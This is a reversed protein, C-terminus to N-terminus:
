TLENTNFSDVFWAAPGEAFCPEQNVTVEDGILNGKEDLFGVQKIVQTRLTIHAYRENFKELLRFKDRNRRVIEFSDNMICRHELVSEDTELYFMFKERLKFLQQTEEYSLRNGFDKKMYVEMVTDICLQLATLEKNTLEVKKM